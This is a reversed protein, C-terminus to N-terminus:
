TTRRMEKLYQIGKDTLSRIGDRCASRQERNNELCTDWRFIMTDLADELEYCIDDTDIEGNSQLMNDSIDQIAQLTEAASRRPKPKEEAKEPEKAQRLQQVLAPREEPPAKAIAAVAKETPKINGTLIEQKIGPEAEEAADVGNAFQEARIVTNRAVGNEAAIRECTKEKLILNGNQYSSKPANNKRDGGYAIKEAKYQQGMLYKFQQSTLNRRGLQNKCIWAIAAYRDPFTKEYTTFQIEPHKQLIHYRNHGDVIVGNWVILPNIVVGDALINEELQKLEEERLPPIKSEFEPDITLHQLM